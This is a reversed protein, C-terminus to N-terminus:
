LRGTNYAPDGSGADPPVSGDVGRSPVHGVMSWGHLLSRSFSAPSNGLREKVACSPGIYGV